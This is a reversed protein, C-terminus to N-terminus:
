QIGKERLFERARTIEIENMKIMTKIQIPKMKLAMKLGDTFSQKSILSAIYRMYEEQLKDFDVPTNNM